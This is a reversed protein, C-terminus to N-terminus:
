STASLRRSCCGMTFEAPWQNDAEVSKGGILSNVTGAIWGVYWDWLHRFGARAAIPLPKSSSKHLSSQCARAVRRLKTLTPLRTKDIKAADRCTPKDIRLSNTM